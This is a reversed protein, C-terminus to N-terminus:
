FMQKTLSETYICPDKSFADNDARLHITVLFDDNNKKDRKYFTYIKDIRLDLGALENKTGHLIM